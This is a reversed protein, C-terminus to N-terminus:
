ARGPKVDPYLLADLNALFERYRGEVLRRYEEALRKMRRRTTKWTEAQVKKWEALKQWWEHPRQLLEQLQELKARYYRELDHVEIASWTIERFHHGIIALRVAEPFKRPHKLLTRALFRVYQWGYRTLPQRNLSRGLSKIENWGIKREFNAHDGLLDFFRSCRRFYNKLNRDYLCSLIRKYGASLTERDMRSVFNPEFRHTNNGESEALLRNEAKLRDYLDTGKLATLVGVMAMPIAAEEIFRVQADFVEIPDSDFGVIFGSSVEIGNRQITRVLHLLSRRTNQTKNTEILSAEIPTEIGLFVLSFGAERMSALLREDEGLNVSAETFFDFPRGHDRQWSTVAELLRRIERKNGIFNDDVFFVPGRWGLRHLEDLEAVILEPSKTRPRNGYMKWIDCFECRYPCGRSFQISMTAYSRLDLLDFRPVPLAALSNPAAGRYLPKLAGARLDALLEELVGEVEGIVQATAGHIEQHFSTPHPGGAVVPISLAAAREIVGALSDKQVIMTSTFVVDAWRLHEDTLPEINMDVLRAHFDPPLMAAVTVLGLPPMASKRGIFPLAHGFSWYTSRPFLPYVLLINKRIM